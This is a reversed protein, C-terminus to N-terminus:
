QESPRPAPYIATTMSRSADPRRKWASPKPWGTLCAADLGFAEALGDLLRRQSASEGLRRGLTERANALAHEVLKRKNGRAPRSVTVRRGARVSLAEAMLARAPLRHSVMIQRPLRAGDYFQSIFAELVQEVGHDEAHGPFYAKNGYNRGARFFFVQVCTQGGEQHAAIVDAEGIAAVDIDRHAQIGALARIRDRYLAAKEFEMAEGAAQMRAALQRQIKNSEGRLFARAENVLGAYEDCGIRDVCPASCRKIQYLLCPRTRGALVADSCTRLLFARQLVGLTENVAGACAFPGFYDGEASRLGRHKVIRTFPHGGTVLISPFSKDDRLLINYRPKLSKILDAELLLAEAEAGTTVFEMSATQAIMRRIRVSQREPKAYGAVRNKLSKAKGVYLVGGEANIMRYVGPKAPLGKLCSEIVKVGASLPDAPPQSSGSLNHKKVM